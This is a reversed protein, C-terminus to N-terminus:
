ADTMTEMKEKREDLIPFILTSQYKYAFLIIEYYFEEKLIFFNFIIQHAVFLM